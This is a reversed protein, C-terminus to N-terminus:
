GWSSQVFLMDKKYEELNQFYKDGVKSLITRLTPSESLKLNEVLANISEKIRRATLNRLEQDCWRKM